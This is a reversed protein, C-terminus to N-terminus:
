MQWSRVGGFWLPPMRKVPPLPIAAPPEAAAIIRCAPCPAQTKQGHDATGRHPCFAPMSGDPMAYANLDVPIHLTMRHGCSGLDLTAALPLVTVNQAFSRAFRSM